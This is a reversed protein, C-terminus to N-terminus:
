GEKKVQTWEENTWLWKELDSYDVALYVGVSKLGIAIGILSGIWGRDVKCGRDLNNKASVINERVARVVHEFHRQDPVTRYISNIM